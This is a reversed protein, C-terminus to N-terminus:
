PVVRCHRIFNFEPSHAKGVGPDQQKISFDLFSVIGLAPLVRCHVLGLFLSDAGWRTVKGVIVQKPDGKEVVPTIILSSGRLEQSAREIIATPITMSRKRSRSAM